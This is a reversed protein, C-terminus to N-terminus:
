DKYVLYRHIGSGVVAWQSTESCIEVENFMEGDITKAMEVSELFDYTLPIPKRKEHIHGDVTMHQAKFLSM